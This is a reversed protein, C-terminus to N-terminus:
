GGAARGVKAIDKLNSLEPEPLDLAGSSGPEPGAPGMEATASCSVCRLNNALQLFCAEPMLFGLWCRLAIMNLKGCASCFSVLTTMGKLQPEPM